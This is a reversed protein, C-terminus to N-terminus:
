LGKKTENQLKKIESIPVPQPGTKDSSGFTEHETQADKIKQPLKDAEVAKKQTAETINILRDLQTFIKAFGLLFLGTVLALGGGFGGDEINLLGGIIGFIGLLVFIIDM